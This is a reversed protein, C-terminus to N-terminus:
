ALNSPTVVMSTPSLSPDPDPNRHAYDPRGTSRGWREFFDENLAALEADTLRVEFM